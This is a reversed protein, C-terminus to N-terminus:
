EENPTFGGRRLVDRAAGDQDPAVYFFAGVRPRRFIASVAYQDPEVLYDFHADTLVQEVRLAEKLSKAVHILRLEQEGFHDAERRPM